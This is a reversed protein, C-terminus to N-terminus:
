LGLRELFKTAFSVPAIGFEKLPIRSMEVKSFRRISHIGGFLLCAECIKNIIRPNGRSQSWIWTTASDDFRVFNGGGSVELRHQVYSRTEEKTLREIKLQLFIRQQLQVLRPHQVKKEMEPQAFLVVQLLKRQTTELNTLIRLFELTEEPLGQAEDVLILCRKGANEASVLFDAFVDLKSLEAKESIGFERYIVELAQQPDLNPNMLTAIYSQNALKEFLVRLLLTKGSGVSGTTFLIGKNEQIGWLLKRLVSDHTATSFYFRANPSEGFPNEKMHYFSLFRM